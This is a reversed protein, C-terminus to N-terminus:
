IPRLALGRGRPTASQGSGGRVSIRMTTLFRRSFFDHVPGTLGVDNKDQVNEEIRSQGYEAHEPRASNGGRAVIQGQAMVIVWDAIHRVMQMDHEVFLVTMGQTKLDLIHDLLSQTLAPNVGAMPEDLMLHTDLSLKCGARRLAADFVEDPRALVGHALAVSDTEGRLDGSRGSKVALVPKDCELILRQSVSGLLLKGVPNRDRIGIVLLEAEPRDMAALLEDAPDFGAITM